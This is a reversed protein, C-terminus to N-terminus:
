IASADLTGYACGVQLELQHPPLGLERPLKMMINRKPIGNFYAKKIDIFSLRMPKENVVPKDAYKKILMREAELPPTSAFFSNDKTYSTNVKCAVLRARVDPCEADGKDSLVWSNSVTKPDKLKRM